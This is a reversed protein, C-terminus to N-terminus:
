KAEKAALGAAEADTVPWTRGVRDFAAWGRATKYAGIPKATSGGSKTTM